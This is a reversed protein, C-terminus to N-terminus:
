SSGSGKQHKSFFIEVFAAPTSFTPITGVFTIVASFSPEYMAVM